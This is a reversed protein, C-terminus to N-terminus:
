LLLPRELVEHVLALWLLRALDLWSLVLCIPAALILTCGARLECEPGSGSAYTSLWGDLRGRDAPESVVLVIEPSEVGVFAAHTSRRTYRDSLEPELELV